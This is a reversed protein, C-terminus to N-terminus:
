FSKRWRSSFFGLSLIMVFYQRQVPFYLLLFFITALPLFFFRPSSPLDHFRALPSPPGLFTDLPNNEKVGQTGLYPRRTRADPVRLTRLFTSYLVRRATECVGVFGGVLKLSRFLLDKQGLLM